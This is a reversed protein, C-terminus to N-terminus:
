QAQGGLHPAFHAFLYVDANPLGYGYLLLGCVACRGFLQTLEQAFSCVCETFHVM